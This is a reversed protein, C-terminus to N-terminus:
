RLWTSRFNLLSEHQNKLGALIDLPFRIESAEVVLSLPSDSRTPGARAFTIGDMSRPPQRSAVSIGIFERERRGSRTLPIMIM